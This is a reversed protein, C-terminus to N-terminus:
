ISVSILCDLFDQPVQPCALHTVHPIVPVKVTVKLKGDNVEFSPYYSFEELMYAFYQMRFPTELCHVRPFRESTYNKGEIETELTIKYAEFTRRAEINAVGSTSMSYVLGLIYVFTMALIPSMTINTKDCKLSFHKLGDSFYAKQLSDAIHELIFKLDYLDFIAQPMMIENSMAFKLYDIKSVMERYMDRVYKDKAYRRALPASVRNLYKCINLIALKSSLFTFILGKTKSKPIDVFFCYYKETKTEYPVVAALHSVHDVTICAPSALKLLSLKDESTMIDLIDLAANGVGFCPFEDKALENLFFFNMNSDIVFFPYENFYESFLKEFKIVM